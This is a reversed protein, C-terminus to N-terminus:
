NDQMWETARDRLLQIVSEVKHKTVALTAAITRMPYGDARMRLVDREFEDRAVHEILEGTIAFDIPMDQRERSVELPSNIERTGKRHRDTQISPQVLTEPLVERRLLEDPTKGKNRRDWNTQYPSEAEVNRRIRSEEKWFDHTARWIEDRVYKVVNLENNKRLRGVATIIGIM